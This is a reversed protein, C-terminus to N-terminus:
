VEMGGYEQMAHHKNLLLVFKGLPPERKPPHRWLKMTETVGPFNQLPYAVVVERGM